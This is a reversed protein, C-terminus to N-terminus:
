WGGGLRCGRTGTHARRDRGRATSQGTGPGRGVRGLCDGGPGIRRGGGRSVRWCYAEGLGGQRSRLRRVVGVCCGGVARGRWVGVRVGGHEDGHEVVSGRGRIGVRAVVRRASLQTIQKPTEAGAHQRRGPQRHEDKGALRPHAPARPRVLARAPPRKPIRLSIPLPPSREKKKGEDRFLRAPSMLYPETTATSPTYQVQENLCLGVM